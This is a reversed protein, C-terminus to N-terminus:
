CTITFLPSQSRDLFIPRKNHLYKNLSKINSDDFCKITEKGNFPVNFYGMSNVRYLGNFCAKNLYLMRAAKVYLPLKKYNSKKDLDRISYYYEECHNKEHIKCLDFMKKFSKNNRLCKYTAILDSNLDNIVFKSPQIVFLLAGGGVFPEFYTNFKKPMLSILENIIQRKGGAWKVFPSLKAKRM